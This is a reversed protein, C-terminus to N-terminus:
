KLGKIHAWALERPTMQGTAAKSAKDNSATGTGKGNARAPAIHTTQRGDTTGRSKDFSLKGPAAAKLTGRTGKAGNKVAKSHRKATQLMNTKHISAHTNFAGQLGTRELMTMPKTNGPIEDDLDIDTTDNGPNGLKVGKDGNDQRSNQTSM